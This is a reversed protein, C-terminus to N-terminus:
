GFYRKACVPGIGERVSTAAKLARGCCICRGYRIMLAEADALPMRHRLRLGRIVGRAYRLEFDVTEGQRTLRRGAGLEHVESAYLHTGAKNPKVVYVVGNKAYVGPVLVDPESAEPAQHGNLPTARPDRRLLWEITRRAWDLSQLTDDSEHAALIKWLRDHDVDALQREDSLRKILDLQADSMPRFAQNLVTPM